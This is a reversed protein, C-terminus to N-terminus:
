PLLLKENITLKIGERFSYEPQFGTDATLSSIDAQLHMVQNATYPIKGFGIKKKYGTIDAIMQIYEALLLTRGSGILYVRNNIGREAILLLAKGADYSFLYDWVQKGETFCTEDQASMQRVATSILTNEGDFPGYVSLIRGWEHRIHLQSCLMRTLQGACLKAIGYGTEPFAPTDPQIVGDVRGYEAQSGAGIFAECKLRHALKVAELSAAINKEQIEADNRSDGTTGRWALHFFFCYELPLGADSLVMEANEYEDINLEVVHCNSITELHATRKSGRHALVVSSYGAQSVMKLLGYGVTGTAGTVIIWKSM